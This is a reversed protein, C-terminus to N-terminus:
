REFASDNKDLDRAIEDRFLLYAKPELNLHSFREQDRKIDQDSVRTLPEAKRLYYYGDRNMLVNLTYDAVLPVKRTKNCEVWSHLFKTKDSILYVYGTVVDNPMGVSESLEMSKHHCKGMRNWTELEKDGKLGPLVESLKAFSIKGETTEIEVAAGDDRVSKVKENKRLRNLLEERKEGVADSITLQQIITYIDYEDLYLEEAQSILEMFAKKDTRKTRHFEEFWELGENEPDAFLLDYNKEM